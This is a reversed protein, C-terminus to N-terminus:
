LDDASGDRQVVPTAIRCRRRRSHSQAAAGRRAASGLAAAVRDLLREMVFTGQPRGAGRTPAAPPMNTLCLFRHRHSLGAACLARDSQHPMIPCRWATPRPPATITASGAAFAAAAPRRADFAAEVEWVQDREQLRPSSIRAGTRSGNSRARSCCRRRRCRSNRRISCRRQGSAAASM